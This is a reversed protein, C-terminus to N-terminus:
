VTEGPRRDGKISDILKKGPEDRVEILNMKYEEYKRCKKKIEPCVLPVTVIKLRKIRALHQESTARTMETKAREGGIYSKETSIARRASDKVTILQENKSGKLNSKLITNKTM